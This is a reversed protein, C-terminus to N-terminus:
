TDVSQGSDFLYNPYMLKSDWIKSQLVLPKKVPDKIMKKLEKERGTHQHLLTEYIPNYAQENMQKLLLMTNKSHLLRHFQKTIFNPPYGNLLLFVDIHCRETNFDHMNSCIRVARLLAGYPINRHIHRPHTSRGYIENHKEQHKILDQEWEFMYINAIVQTLASGMAGGRIQRYYKNNYAFTNTDLILRAMKMIHDITFTSIKGLEQLLTSYLHTESREDLSSTVEDLFIWKPQHLLIRVFIMKQQEGSSLILSWDEIDDLRNALSELQCLRLIREINADDKSPRLTTSPYTFCHRLTGLPCYPKQPIFEITDSLPKTIIGHGYPWIGALIRLLTSKGCGSPGLAAYCIAIWMMGGPIKYSVYETVHIEIVGSLSWLIFVHSIFSAIAHTAGITLNCTHTIYSAIDVSIRQDPNDERNTKFSAGYYAHEALYNTIFYNTLWRRWHLEFLQAFYSKYVSVAILASCVMWNDQTIKVNIKRCAENPCTIVRNLIVSGITSEDDILISLDEDNKQQEQEHEQDSPIDEHQKLKEQVPTDVLYAVKNLEEKISEIKTSDNHELYPTIATQTPEQKTQWTFDFNCRTCRMHSCGGNKEIAVHCEPCFQIDDVNIREATLIEQLLTNQESLKIFIHRYRQTPIQENWTKKQEKTKNLKALTAEKEKQLQKLEKLKLLKMQEILYDKPCITQFHYTEYCKKCFTYHCQDCIALNDDEPSSIIPSQCRPCWVIDKMSELGHQLTLREYREYLKENQITQKIETPLLAQKCHDQPCLLNEGFKGNDLTM